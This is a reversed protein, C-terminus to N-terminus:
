TAVQFANTSGPHGIDHALASILLQVQELSSISDGLGNLMFFCVSNTVDIAHMCNHYPLQNYGEKIRNLFTVLINSDLVNLIKLVNFRKCIFYGMEIFM